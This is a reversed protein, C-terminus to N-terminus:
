SLVDYIEVIRGRPLGGGMVFDLPPCNSPIWLQDDDDGELKRQINLTNIYRQWSILKNPDLSPRAM